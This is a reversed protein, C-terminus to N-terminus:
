SHVITKFGAMAFKKMDFPMDTQSTMRPDKMVKKNVRDRHAKSKYVIYAFVVTDSPKLKCMKRFGLGHQMYDDAVCEYYDLAGYEMWVKYGIEAMKQYAKLNKKPVPIVFGDVYRAM